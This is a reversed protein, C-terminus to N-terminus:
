PSSRDEIEWAHDLAHWAIYRAAYRLPWKRGALPSGDSATRLVTLMEERMSKLAERDEPGFGRRKVGVERAYAQDSEIVHAVMKALDRGGGRPGKRLEAPSKATTAEFKRWAAEVLAALRKAETALVPRRDHEIIASPVGFLTGSGGPVSAVLNFTDLGVKPFTFGAAEAVPAYRPAAGLLAQLAANQDRGSRCWGPWDVAWVFVKKSTVEEAIELQEKRPM